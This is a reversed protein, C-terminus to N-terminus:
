CKYGPCSDRIGPRLTLSVFSENMSRAGTFVVPNPVGELVQRLDFWRYEWVQHAHKVM